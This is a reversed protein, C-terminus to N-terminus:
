CLLEKLMTIAGQIKHQCAMLIEPFLFQTGPFQTGPAGTGAHGVSTRLSQRSVSWDPVCAGPATNTSRYERAIVIPPADALARM